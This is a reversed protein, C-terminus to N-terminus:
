LYSQAKPLLAVRDSYDSYFIFGKDRLLRLRPELRDSSEGTHIEALSKSGGTSLAALLEIENPSLERGKEEVEAQKWRADV